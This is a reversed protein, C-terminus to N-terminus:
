GGLMSRPVVRKKNVAVAILKAPAHNSTATRTASFEYFAAVFCRTLQQEEM